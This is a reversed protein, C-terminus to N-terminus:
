CNSNVPQMPAELSGQQSWMTQYIDAKAKDMINCEKTQKADFLHHYLTNLSIHFLTSPIYPQQEM